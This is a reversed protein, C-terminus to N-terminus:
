GVEELCGELVGLHPESREQSKGSDETCGTEGPFYSRAKLGEHSHVQRRTSLMRHLTPGRPSARAGPQSGDGVAGKGQRHSKGGATVISKLTGGGRPGVGARAKGVEPEVGQGWRIVTDQALGVGATEPSYGPGFVHGRRGEQRPGAAGVHPPLRQPEQADGWASGGGPEGTQAM